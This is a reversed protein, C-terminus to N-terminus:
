TPVENLLKLTPWDLYYVRQNADCAQAYEKKIGSSQDWLPLCLIAIADCRKLMELGHASYYKYGLDKCDLSQQHWHVTPAYCHFGQDALFTMAKFCEEVRMQIVKPDPHTYPAALYLLPKPM